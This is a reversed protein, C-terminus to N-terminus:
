RPVYGISAGCPHRGARIRDGSVEDTGGRRTKGGRLSSTALGILGAISATSVITQRRTAADACNRAEPVSCAGSISQWCPAFSTQSLEHLRQRGPGVSGGAVGANNFACRDAWLRRRYARGDRGCRSGHNRRGRDCHGSRRGRQDPSLELRTRETRDAVAVRAM